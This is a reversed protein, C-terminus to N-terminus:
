KCEPVKAQVHNIIGSYSPRPQGSKLPRLVSWYASAGKNNASSIVGDRAILKAMIKVGCDLNNIPDKLNDKAKDLNCFPYSQKDVYSLQLLGISPYGLPPPENYTSNPNFGSEYKVMGVILEGIVLKKTSPNFLKFKPCFKEFDTAALFSPMKEDVLESVKDSWDQHGWSLAFPKPTDVPAPKFTIQSCGVLHILLIVLYRNM